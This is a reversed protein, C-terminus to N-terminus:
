KVRRAKYENLITKIHESTLYYKSGNIYVEYKHPYSNFVPVRNIQIRNHGSSDRYYENIPQEKNEHDKQEIVNTFNRDFNKLFYNNEKVFDHQTKNSITNAQNVFSQGCDYCRVYNDDIRKIRRHDCIKAFSDKNMIINNFLIIIFM